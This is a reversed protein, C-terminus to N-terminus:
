PAPARPRRQRLASRFAEVADEVSEFRVFQLAVGGPAIRPVLNSQHASWNGQSQDWNISGVLVANESPQDGTPLHVIDGGTLRFLDFKIGADVSSM